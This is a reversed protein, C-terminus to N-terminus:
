YYWGEAIGLEPKYAAARMATLAKHAIAESHVGIREVLQWPFSQHVLFEAQKAEKTDENRFDTSAVAEWDIEDLQSWESFFQAYNAAANSLTFAWRRQNEDAWQVVSTLDAELHIIEEQGGLYKLQPHNRRYIVYLMISRPCFYFPVYDGVNTTPHCSVELELRRQKINGMGIVTGGQRQSMASDSWLCGDEIISALNDLHVIHYIKPHSPVPM